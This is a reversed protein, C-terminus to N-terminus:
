IIGYRASLVTKTSYQKLYTFFPVWNKTFYVGIKRGNKAFFRAAEMHACPGHLPPVEPAGSISEFAVQM